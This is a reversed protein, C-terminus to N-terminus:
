LCTSQNLKKPESYEDDWRQGNFWTAPYAFPIDRSQCDSVYRPIAELITKKDTIKLSKEIAKLAKAKAKKMPYAKYIELVDSNSIKPSSPCSSAKAESVEGEGEGEGQVFGSNEPVVSASQHCIPPVVSASDTKIHKNEIALWNVKELLKLSGELDASDIRTIERLDAVEMGTGDSNALIGSKRTDKSLTGMVQCLAQFAGLAIVGSQGERMLMRYGKSDCGTPSLFWGLRQRKRTDASEFGKSWNNIKIM